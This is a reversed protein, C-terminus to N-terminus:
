VEYPQSVTLLQNVFFHRPMVLNTYLCCTIRYYIMGKLFKAMRKVAVNANMLGTAVTPMM